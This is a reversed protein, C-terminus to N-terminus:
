NTQGLSDWACPTTWVYEVTAEEGPDYAIQTRRLPEHISYPTWFDTATPLLVHIPTLSLSWACMGVLGILKLATSLAFGVMRVSLPRYDRPPRCSRAVFRAYHYASLFSVLMLRWCFGVYPSLVLAAIVFTPHQVLGHAEGRDDYDDIAISEDIDRRSRKQAMTFVKEQPCPVLM